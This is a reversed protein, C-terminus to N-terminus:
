LYKMTDFVANIIQEKSNNEAYKIITKLEEASICRAAIMSYVASVNDRKIADIIKKVNENM